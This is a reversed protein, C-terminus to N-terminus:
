FLEIQRSDDGLKAFVSDLASIARAMRKPKGQAIRQRLEQIMADTIELDAHVRCWGNVLPYPVGFVGAEVSTLAHLGIGRAKVYDMFNMM